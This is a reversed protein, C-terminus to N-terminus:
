LVLRKEERIRDIRQVVVPGNPRPVHRMDIRRDLKREFRRQDIEDESVWESIDQDALDFISLEDACHHSEWQKTRQIKGVADVVNKKWVPREGANEVEDM